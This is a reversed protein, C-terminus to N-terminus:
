KLLAYSVKEKKNQKWSLSYRLSSRLLIMIIAAWESEHPHGHRHSDDLITNTAAESSSMSSVSSFDNKGNEQNQGGHRANRAAGPFTLTNPPVWFDGDVAWVLFQGGDGGGNLGVGLYEISGQLRRATTVPM